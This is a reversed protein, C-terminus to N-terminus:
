MPRVPPDGQHMAWAILAVPVVLLVATAVAALVYVGPVVLLAVGIVALAGVVLWAVGGGRRAPLGDMRRAFAPDAGAERAALQALLEQERRTLPREM